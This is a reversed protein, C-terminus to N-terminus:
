KNHNIYVETAGVGYKALSADFFHLNDYTKLVKIIENKLTGNGVGHIFILKSIRKIFASELCKTFYDLQIKLMESNDLLYYDEVLEGIHLDIEATSNNVLHNDLISEAKVQVAKKQIIEPEQKDENDKKAIKSQSVQSEILKGITLLLAKEHLFTSSIYNEEKYFRTPKLKFDANLPLLLRDKTEAHYLIQINGNSWQELEEREITTILKKSEPELVDYDMGSYKNNGFLTFNFLTYFETHNLIYIDIDGTILWKQDHPVYALYIGAPHSNNTYSKLLTSKGDEEMEQIQEVPKYDVKFDQNFMRASASTDEIKLLESTMTPIEFGEEIAVNVMTSSIIKTVIGGGSTNLFKVKDGINYKM